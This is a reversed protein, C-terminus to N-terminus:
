FLTIESESKKKDMKENKQEGCILNNNDIRNEKKLSYYLYRPHGEIIYEYLNHQSSDLGIYKIENQEIENLNKNENLNDEKEKNNDKNINIGYKIMNLFNADSKISNEDLCFPIVPFQDNNYNRLTSGDPFKIIVDYLINDKTFISDRLSTESMIIKNIDIDKLEDM